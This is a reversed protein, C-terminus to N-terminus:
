ELGSDEKWTANILFFGQEGLFSGCIVYPDAIRLILLHRRSSSSGFWVFLSEFVLLFSTTFTSFYFSSRRMLFFFFFSLWIFGSKRTWLNSCVIHLAKNTNSSGLASLEFSVSFSYRASQKLLGTLCVRGKRTILNLVLGSCSKGSSFSPLDLKYSVNSFRDGQM